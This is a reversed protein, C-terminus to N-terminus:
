EWFSLKRHIPLGKRRDKGQIASLSLRLMAIKTRRWHFAGYDQRLCAENHQVVFGCERRCCNIQEVDETAQRELSRPSSNDQDATNHKQIAVTFADFQDEPLRFDGGSVRVLMWILPGAFFSNQKHYPHFCNNGSKTMRQNLWPIITSDLHTKRVLCFNLLALKSANTPLACPSHMSFWRNNVSIM